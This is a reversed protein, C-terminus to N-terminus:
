NKTSVRQGLRAPEEVRDRLDVLGRRMALRVATLQLYEEHENATFARRLRTDLLTQLRRELVEPDYWRAGETPMAGEEAGGVAELYAV